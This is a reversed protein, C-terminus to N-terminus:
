VVSKRDASAADVRHAHDGAQGNPKDDVADHRFWAGAADREFREREGRHLLEIAAWQEYPATVVFAGLKDGEDVTPVTPHRVQWVILAVAAVLLALWALARGRTM